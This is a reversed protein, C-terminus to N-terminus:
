NKFSLKLSRIFEKDKIKATSIRQNLKALNAQGIQGATITKVKEEGVGTIARTRSAKITRLITM